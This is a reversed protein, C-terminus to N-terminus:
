AAQQVIKRAIIRPLNDFATSKDFVYNVGINLYKKTYQPFSYNTLLILLPTISFKSLKQLLLNRYEQFLNFDLIIVEPITHELSDIFSKEGKACVIEVGRILALISSLRQWMLESREGVLIKMKSGEMNNLIGLSPYCIEDVGNLTIWAGLKLWVIVAM